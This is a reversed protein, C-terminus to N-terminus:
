WSEYQPQMIHCNVCAAPDTSLYSLGEGYHFTFGGLGLLMGLGAAIVVGGTTMGLRNGM